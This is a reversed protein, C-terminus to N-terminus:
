NSETYKKFNDLIAQWGTRQLEVSNTTEADFIETINTKGNEDEFEVKVKRIDGLSYEILKNPIVNDYIGEFDFGFSGDKAEMRSLFKGGTRLDNEAKTTHWDDSANNWKVIHEPNTWMEWVKEVPSNVTAKVTIKIKNDQEM